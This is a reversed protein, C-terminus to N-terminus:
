RRLEAEAELRRLLIRGGILQYLIGVLLTGANDVCYMLNDRAPNRKGRPCATRGVGRRDDIALLDLWCLNGCVDRVLAVRLFFM